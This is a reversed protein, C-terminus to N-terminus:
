VPEGSREGNSGDRPVHCDFASPPDDKTPESTTQRPEFDSGRLQVPQEEHASDNALKRNEM